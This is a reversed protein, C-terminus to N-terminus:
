ILTRILVEKQSVLDFVTKDAILKIRDYGSTFTLHGRIDRSERSVSQVFGEECTHHTIDQAVDNRVFFANSGSSDAGVFKYGKKEALICLAKLSAGFYLNSFHAKTRNFDAQYPITIAHKKGLVSNYECIIIRPQVASIADWIWYDNGDIDISLLGIDGSFCNDTFLNDVNDRTILAHIATLDHQWYWDYSHIRTIFKKESDIVLGKWNDNLLLYRTNSERYDGVGFEIFMKNPIQVHRILYQIIGDERHQSFIKFEVESLHNARTIALLQQSLIQGLLIRNELSPKDLRNFLKVLTSEFYDRIKKIM